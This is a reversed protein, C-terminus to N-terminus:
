TAEFRRLRLANSVVTVSSLGMAAAAFVPNLLLGFLPYLAGAAIPILATNYAFAWFLNQRINRMTAKSLRVATAVGRLDGSILTVDSAEMAVDTGTGIAIGLDAQALAPADNIGDGVMAVVKGQSQLESIVASKEHPLVEALVGDIGAQRAIAEATARNDGTLMLVELGLGHLASVAEPAHDKLTDAVAILGAQARDMAVYMPTKGEAALSDAKDTLGDIAVGEAEMLARNGLLVQQGDVRARIGHGAVAEFSEAEILELGEEHAARVIAEGLPHESGQEASAALRLLEDRSTGEPPEVDTVSPEGVTLTGTKDLVVANLKYATELAEAGRILIGLEAGKGTGVMISTPTALGLACPCAIILVAVFTMLAYNLAPPPGFFYWIMFTAVSLVIVAQVFYSAVTDVLRQIPPKSGQAEEVLQVIQALMTERGVKTAEFQFTGVKNITAGIVEDGPGKEVPMSEGTLMSEDLSSRGTKVIGDVPVKEGPRVEVIHGAQVEEIPIDVREGNRVVRATKPALGMLRQIAESARGKARVELWRGILVLTIIAAATDFYLDPAAGTQSFFGPALVVAVSYGYAATTGTAILTNMDASLHRLGKFTGAYFSWGSWFQVPTALAWLLLPHGLWDLLGRPLGIWEGFTGLFILSTAVAGLVFRRFYSAQEAAQRERQRELPDKDEEVIPAASYGAREVASLLDSREVLGPLYAVWAQNTAFNVEAETVGPLAKIAREVKAVCSACTMGEIALTTREATLDYGIAQIAERAKQPEFRAPDITLHARGAGFNVSAADVGDLNELTEEIRKACSACTMGEVGVALHALGPEVAPAAEQHEDQSVDTAEATLYAGPDSSFAEQCSSSCFAFTEGDHEVTLISDAVKMGCVPDRAM